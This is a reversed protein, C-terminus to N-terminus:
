SKTKRPKKSFGKGRGRIFGEGPCVISRRREETEPNYWHPRKGIEIQRISKGREDRNTHSASGIQKAFKSKGDSDKERHRLECSRKGAKSTDQKIKEPSRGHVGLCQALTNLGVKRSNLGNEGLGACITGVGQLGSYKELQRRNQVVLEKVHVLVWVVADKERLRTILDAIVLSKGTGTPLQVCPHYGRKLSSWVADGAEKQYTRLEM